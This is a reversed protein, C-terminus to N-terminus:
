PSKSKGVYQGACRKGTSLYIVWNSDCNVNQKIKYVKKTNTSKFTKTEKMVPCSVRCHNCKSCGSDPPIGAGGSGGQNQSVLKQLNKPQRTAIQIRKGIEKSKENKMLQDKCQRVWQHIPPNAQNHTFILRVKNDSNKKKRQKFILEKRDKNKAREFQLDVLEPPYNREEFKTKLNALQVERDNPTACREVVRLAQSYPISKRCHEPHNSKFDLYLQKNTPKTHLSTELKGNKISIELDLFVIRSFSYEYKFKVVGPMLSNLWEVLQECEEKSGRFLMLVDDIFRKWLKIKELLDQNSSFVTKEFRGMGLCAYTPAM